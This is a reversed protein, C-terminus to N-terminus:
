LTKVSQATVGCVYGEAGEEGAEYLEKARKQTAGYYLGSEDDYRICFGEARVKPACAKTIALVANPYHEITEMFEATRIAEGETAKIYLRKIATPVSDQEADMFKQLLGLEKNMGFVQFIRFLTKLRVAEGKEIAAVASQSIGAEKALQKQSINMNRRKKNVFSALSDVFDEFKM